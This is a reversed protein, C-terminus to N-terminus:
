RVKELETLVSIAEHHELSLNSLRVGYGINIENKLAVIAGSTWENGENPRVFQILDTNLCVVRGATDVM